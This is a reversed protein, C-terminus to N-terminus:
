AKRTSEKYGQQVYQEFAKLLDDPLIDPEMISLWKWLDRGTPVAGDSSIVVKNAKAYPIWPRIKQIPLQYILQADDWVTMQSRNLLGFSRKTQETLEQLSLLPGLDSAAMREAQEWESIGLGDHVILSRRFGYHRLLCERIGLLTRTKGAGGPDALIVSDGRDLMYLAQAVAQRQSPWLRMEELEEWIEQGIWKGELLDALSFALSEQWSVYQSLTRLM